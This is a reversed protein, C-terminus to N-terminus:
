YNIDSVASDPDELDAEESEVVTDTDVSDVMAEVSDVMAEVSDTLDETTHHNLMPKQNPIPQDSTVVSNATDEASEEVTDWDVVTDASVADVSVASVTDM